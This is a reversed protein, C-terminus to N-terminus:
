NQKRIEARFRALLKDASDFLSLEHETITYGATNQLLALFKPEVDKATECSMRTSALDEFSLKRGSSKYTGSFNNCGSFGHVTADEDSLSLTPRKIEDGIPTDWESLIWVTGKLDTEKPVGVLEGIKNSPKCACALILLFLTAKTNM